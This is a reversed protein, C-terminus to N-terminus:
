RLFLFSTPSDTPLRAPGSTNGRSCGQVNQGWRSAFENVQMKVHEAMNFVLHKKTGPGATKSQSEPTFM